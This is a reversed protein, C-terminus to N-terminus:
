QKVPIELLFRFKVWQYSICSEIGKKPNQIAGKFAIQALFELSLALSAVRNCASAHGLEDM